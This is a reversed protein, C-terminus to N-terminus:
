SLAVCQTLIAFAFAIVLWAGVLRVRARTISRVLCLEVVARVRLHLQRGSWPFAETQSFLAPLVKGVFDVLGRGIMNAVLDRRVFQLLLNSPDFLLDTV